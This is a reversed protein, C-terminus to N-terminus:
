MKISGTKITTFRELIENTVRGTNLDIKYRLVGIPLNYKDYEYKCYGYEILKSYINDKIAEQFPINQNIGIQLGIAINNIVTIPCKQNNMLTPLLLNHINNDPYLKYGDGISYYVRGCKLCVWITNSNIHNHIKHSQMGCRCKWTQVNSSDLKYTGILEKILANNFKIRNCKKCYSFLKYYTIKVNSGCHICKALKKLKIRTKYIKIIYSICQQIIASM